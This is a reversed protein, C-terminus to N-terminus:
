VGHVEVLVEVAETRQEVLLAGRLRLAEGLEGERLPHPAPERQRVDFGDLLGPEGSARQHRVGARAADLQRSLLKSDTGDCPHNWLAIRRIVGRGADHRPALARPDADSEVLGRRIPRRLAAHRDLQQRGRRGVVPEGARHPPHAVRPAPM